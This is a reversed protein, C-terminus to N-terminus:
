RKLIVFGTRTTAGTKLIYFYTDETLPMGEANTGNWRNDYNKTEFVRSGWRNVITLEVDTYLNINPVEFYDNKGDGNPSIANPMNTEEVTIRIDDETFDCDGTIKWKIINAGANLGNIFTTNNLYDTFVGNGSVLFWEGVGNVPKNAVLEFRSSTITTDRGVFATDALAKRTISVSDSKLPCSGNSVTWKFINEGVALNSLKTAPNSPDVITATGSKLSWVGVGANLPSANLSYNSPCITESNGAFIAGIGGDVQITITSPASVCAGNINTWQLVVSSSTINSVSTVALSPVKVSASGSVVIWNGIGVSPATAALTTGSTCITQNSGAVAPSALDFVVVAITSAKAACIGNAISWQLVNNGITLGSVTTSSSASNTIVAGGSLVSWTGVGVSPSNAALTTVPSSICVSQNPGAVSNDPADDVQINTTSTNLCVGNKLQWQLVNIGTSINTVTTIAATSNTIVGSGLTLSWTGVGATPSNGSLLVSASSICVTQSVGANAFGPFADVQILVTSTSPSCIGNSVRWQLINTGSGLGTIASSPLGPSTITGSGSVLSWTATGLTPTNASLTTSPTTSCLTQSSGATSIDPTNDVRISVTSSSSCFGNSLTWRLVHLGVSMATIQTTPSSPSVITATGSLLSWLGSGLSAPNGTVLTSGSSICITQNAGANAIGPLADVQVTMTSSSSPCSGNSATWRLVTTGTSISTFSSTPSLSNSITGIGSIVSWTGIGASLSNAALVTTPSSICLTQNPGAVAAAPIPDVQINITSSSVCGGNSVNWQLINTGTGLATVSTAALTPSIITGSGSVLSWFATGGTPSTAALTTSPSNACLTQSIGATATQAPNNVIILVTASNPACSGNSMTWRLTNTGSGLGNIASTPSLSNSFAGSGGILTWTGIGTTITNAALITNPSSICLSQNTGANALDPLADTQVSVTSTTSCGGNSIRWQLVRLGPTLGTITTGPLTSNTVVALPGSILSWTGAGGPTPTNAALTTSGSSV